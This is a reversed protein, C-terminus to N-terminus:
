KGLFLAPKEQAILSTFIVAEVAAANLYNLSKSSM